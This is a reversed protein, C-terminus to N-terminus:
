FFMKAVFKMFFKMKTVSDYEAIIEVGGVFHKGNFNAFLDHQLNKHGMHM